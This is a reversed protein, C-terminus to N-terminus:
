SQRQYRLWTLQLAQHIVFLMVVSLLFVLWGAFTHFFGLARDPDCYHVLLGTGVIRLSNVLVAIPISALALLARISFRRETFYGYIISLITLSLLSRIGSCAEAVDLTMAPLQVINGERLVPVNFAALTFAAIKSAFLQLPFTIQNLVIAPLPVMLFLFLWPFLIIRFRARGEFFVYIGGILLLLSIRSLFLEAGLVGTVLVTLALVVLVLGTSSPKRPSQTVAARKRWLVFFSFSPVLMGYSFDPDSLWQKTLSLIISSYLWGVLVTLIALQLWHIPNLRLSSHPRAAASATQTINPLALM